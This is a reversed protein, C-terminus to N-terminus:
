VRDLIDIFLFWSHTANISDIYDQSVHLGSEIDSDPEHSDISIRPRYVYGVGWQSIYILNKGKMSSRKWSQQAALLQGRYFTPGVNETAEKREDLGPWVVVNAGNTRCKM